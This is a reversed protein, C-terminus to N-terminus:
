REMSSGFNYRVGGTLAAIPKTILFDSNASTSTFQGYVAVRGVQYQVGGLVLLGTKSRGDETLSRSTQSASDSTSATGLTSLAFGLGGYPRFNHAQFPFAVGAISVTRMNHIAVPTTGTSSGADAVASTTTFHAQDYGVYLGGDTRTILWDGGITGATINSSAPIRISTGGAHIGWFWSDQFLKAEQAHLAPAAVLLSFPIAAILRSVRM